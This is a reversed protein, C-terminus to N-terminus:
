CRADGQAWRAVSDANGEKHLTAGGSWVILRSSRAGTKRIEAKWYYSAVGWNNLRHVVEGYGLESYLESDVIHTTALFNLGALCRRATKSLDRYAIQYNRKIDVELTHTDARQELQEPSSMCGALLTAAVLRKFV